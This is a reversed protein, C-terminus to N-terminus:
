YFDDEDDDEVPEDDLEPKAAVAAAAAAAAEIHAVKEGLTVLAARLAGDVVGSLTGADGGALKAQLATM